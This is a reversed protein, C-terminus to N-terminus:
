ITICCVKLHLIIWLTYRKRNPLFEKLSSNWLGAHQEQERHVGLSASLLASYLFCFFFISHYHHQIHWANKCCKCFSIRGQFIIGSRPADVSHFFPTQKPHLIKLTLNATLFKTSLNIKREKQNQNSRQSCFLMCMLQSVSHAPKHYHMHSSFPVQTYGSHM